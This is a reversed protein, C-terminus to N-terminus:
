YGMDGACCDCMGYQADDEHIIHGCRSCMTSHEEMCHVCVFEEGDNIDILDEHEEQCWDCKPM